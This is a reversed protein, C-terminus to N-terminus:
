RRGQEYRDACDTSCFHIVTGKIRRSVSRGKVIYTRCQPDLVMEEGQLRRTEDPRGYADVASRIVTKIAQYIVMFLVFLLIARIM